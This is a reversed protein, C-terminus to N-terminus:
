EETIVVSGIPLKITDGNNVTFTTNTGGANETAGYYYMNGGTIASMIAWHSVVGWNATAQGFNVEASNSASNSTITFPIVKRTYGGGTVETGTSTEGPNSTFLALYVTGGLYDTLVKNEFWKTKANSTAM